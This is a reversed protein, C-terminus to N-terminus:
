VPPKGAVIQAHRAIMLWAGEQFQWINTFRRDM